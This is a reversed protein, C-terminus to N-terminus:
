TSKTNTESNQSKGYLSVAYDGRARSDVKRNQSRCWEALERPNISRILNVGAKQFDKMM